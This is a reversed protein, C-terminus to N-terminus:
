LIVADDYLVLSSCISIHMPLFSPRYGTCLKLLFIYLYGPTYALTAYPNIIIEYVATLITRVFCTAHKQVSSYMFFIITFGPHSQIPQLKYSPVM